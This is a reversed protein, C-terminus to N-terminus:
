DLLRGSKHKNICLYGESSEHPAVICPIREAVQIGARELAAIKDPNNSLLRVTEVQFYRIIDVPMQYDRCDAEFSLRENAKVDDAADDPLDYARLKILRGISRGEQHEYILLGGGERAILNLSLELQLRCNCVLSHFVDGTLCQTHIGVLPPGGAWALDGITLAVCEELEDGYRGLFGHIRFHGFRSPFDAEAVKTLSCQRMSSQAQLQSTFRDAVLDGKETSKRLLVVLPLPFRGKTKRRKWAGTM